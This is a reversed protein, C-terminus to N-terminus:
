LWLKKKIDTNDHDVKRRKLTWLRSDEGKRINSDHKVDRGSSIGKVEGDKKTNDHKVKVRCLTSEGRLLTLYPSPLQSQLLLTFPFFIGPFTKM